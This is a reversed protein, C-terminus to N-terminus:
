FSFAPLEWSWSGACPSLDARLAARASVASRRPVTEMGPVSAGEARRAECGQGVVVNQKREMPCVWLLCLSMEDTDWCVSCKGRQDRGAVGWVQEWCLLYRLMPYVLGSHTRFQKETM